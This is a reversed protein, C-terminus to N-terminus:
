VIFTKHIDGCLQPNPLRGSGGNCGGVNDKRGYQYNMDITKTPDAYQVVKQAFLVWFDARSIEHCHEQWIPELVTFIPSSAEIIGANDDSNTSLCGDPGYLDTKNIDVEAADHFAIRLSAGFIHSLDLRNKAYKKVIKEFSKSIGINASCVNKKTSLPVKGKTKICYPAMM